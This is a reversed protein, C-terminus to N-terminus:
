LAEAAEHVQEVILRCTKRAGNCIYPTLAGNSGLNGLDQTHSITSTHLTHIIWCRRGGSCGIGCGAITSLVSDVQQEYTEEKLIISTSLILPCLLEEYIIGIALNQLATQPSVMGDSFLQDWKEVKGIHYAALTQGIIRLIKRCSPIFNIRPLEQM